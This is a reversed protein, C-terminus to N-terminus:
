LPLRCTCCLPRSPPHCSLQVRRNLDTTLSRPSIRTIMSIRSNGHTFLAHDQCVAVHRVITLVGVRRSVRSSSDTDLGQTLTHRLSVISNTAQRAIDGPVADLSLESGLFVGEAQAALRSSSPSAGPPLQPVNLLNPDIHMTRLIDEASPEEPEDWLNMNALDDSDDEDKILGNFSSASASNVIGFKENSAVQPLVPLTVFTSAPDKYKRTQSAVLTNWRQNCDNVLSVHHSGYGSAAFPRIDGGVRLAARINRRLVFDHGLHAMTELGSAFSRM